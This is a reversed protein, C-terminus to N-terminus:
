VPKVTNRRFCRNKMKSASAFGEKKLANAVTNTCISMSGDSCLEKAVGVATDCKGPTILRVIQRCDQSTLKKPAGHRDFSIRSTFKKSIRHVSAKSVSTTKAIESFSRGSELLFIVNKRTAASLPKM